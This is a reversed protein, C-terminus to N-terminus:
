YYDTKNYVYDFKLQLYKMFCEKNLEMKCNDILGYCTQINPAMFDYCLYMYTEEPNFVVQEDKIFAIVEKDLLFNKSLKKNIELPKKNESKKHQFETFDIIFEENEDCYYTWAHNYGRGTTCIYEFNKNYVMKLFSTILDASLKCCYPYGIKKHYLFLSFDMKIEECFETVEKRISNLDKEIGVEELYNM